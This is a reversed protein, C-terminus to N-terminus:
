LADYKELAPHHIKHHLCSRVDVLAFRAFRQAFRGRFNKPIEWARVLSFILKKLITPRKAQGRRVAESSPVPPGSRQEASHRVAESSPVAASRKAMTVSPHRLAYAM